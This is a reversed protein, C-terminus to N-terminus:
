KKIFNFQNLVNDGNSVTYDWFLEEGKKIKRLTIFPNYGSTNGPIEHVAINPKKSHNVHFRIGMSNLGLAYVQYIGNVSVFIDQIKSAVENPLKKLEEEKLPMTPEPLVNPFPDVSKPIDRIAIVGVGHVKSCGFSCYTNNLNQILKEKLLKLQKIQAQTNKIM